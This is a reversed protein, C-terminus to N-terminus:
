EDDKEEEKESSDGTKAKKAPNVFLPKGAKVREAMRSPELTSDDMLDGLWAKKTETSPDDFHHDAKIEDEAEICHDDSILLSTQIAKAFLTNDNYKGYVLEKAHLTGGIHFEGSTWLATTTVDGLVVVM